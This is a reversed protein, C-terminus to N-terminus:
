VQVSSVKRPSSSDLTSICNLGKGFLLCRKKLNSIYFHLAAKTGNFNRILFVLVFCFGWVFRVHCCSTLCAPSLSFVSNTDHKDLLAGSHNKIKRYFGWLQVLHHGTFSYPQNPATVLNLKEQPEVKVVASHHLHSVRM